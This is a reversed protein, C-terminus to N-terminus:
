SGLSGLKQRADLRRTVRPKLAQGSDSRTVGGRIEWGKIIAQMDGGGVEKWTGKCSLTQPHHVSFAKRSSISPLSTGCKCSATLISSDASPLGREPTQQQQYAQTDGRGGGGGAIQASGTPPAAQSTGRPPLRMSKPEKSHTMPCTAESSQAWKRMRGIPLVVLGM